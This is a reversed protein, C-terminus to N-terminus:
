HSYDMQIWGIKSGGPLANDSLAVIIHSVLSVYEFADVSLVEDNPTVLLHVEDSYDKRLRHRELEEARSRSGLLAIPFFPEYDFERPENQFLDKRSKLAEAISM